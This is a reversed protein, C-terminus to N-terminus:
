KMLVSSWSRPNYSTAPSPVQIFEDYSIERKSWVLDM